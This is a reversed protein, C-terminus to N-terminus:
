LVTLPFNLHAIVCRWSYSAEKPLLFDPLHVLILCVNYKQIIFFFNLSLAVKVSLNPKQGYHQDLYHKSFAMNKYSKAKPNATSRFHEHYRRSPMCFRYVSSYHQIFLWMVWFL